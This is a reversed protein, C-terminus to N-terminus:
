KSQVHQDLKVPLFKKLFIIVGPKLRIYLLPGVPFIHVFLLNSFCSNVYVMAIFNFLVWEFDRSIFCASLLTMAVKGNYTGETYASSLCPM